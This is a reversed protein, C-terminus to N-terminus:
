PRRHTCLDHSLLWAACGSEYTPRPNLVPPVQLSDMHKASRAETDALSAAPCPEHQWAEYRKLRSEALSMQHQRQRGHATPAPRRILVSVSHGCSDFTTVSTTLLHSGVLWAVLGTWACVYLNMWDICVRLSESSANLDQVFLMDCAQAFHWPLRPILTPGM